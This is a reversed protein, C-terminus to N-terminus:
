LELVTKGALFDIIKPLAVQLSVAATHLNELFEEHSPREGDVIDTIVKVCFYPIKFLEVTWAIAAAEMDKVSADLSYNYKWWLWHILCLWWKRGDKPRRNTLSGFFKINLYRRAQFWIETTMNAIVIM